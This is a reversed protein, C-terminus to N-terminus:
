QALPLNSLQRLESEMADVDANHQEIIAHGKAFADPAKADLGDLKENLKDAEAELKKKTDAIRQAVQHLKGMSNLEKVKAILARDVLIQVAATETDTLM